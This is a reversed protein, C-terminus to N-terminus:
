VILTIGPIRDPVHGSVAPMLRARDYNLAIGTHLSIQIDCASPLNGALRSTGPM